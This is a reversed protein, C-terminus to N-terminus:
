VTGGVGTFPPVRASSLIFIALDGVAGYRQEIKELCDTLDPFPALLDDGSFEQIEQKSQSIHALILQDSALEAGGFSSTKTEM